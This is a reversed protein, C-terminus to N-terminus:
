VKPTLMNKKKMYSYGVQTLLMAETSHMPKGYMIIFMKSAILLLYGYIIKSDAQNRLYTITARAVDYFSRKDVDAFVHQPLLETVAKIFANMYPMIKKWDYPFVKKLIEKIVKDTMEADLGILEKIAQVFHIAPVVYHKFVGRLTFWVLVIYSWIKMVLKM